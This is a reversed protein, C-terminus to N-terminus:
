AGHVLECDLRGLRGHQGHQGHRPHGTHWTHRTKLPKRQLPFMLASGAATLWQSWHGAHVRNTGHCNQESSTCYNLSTNSLNKECPFEQLTSDQWPLCEGEPYESYGPHRSSITSCRTFIKLLPRRSHGSSIKHCIACLGASNSIAPTSTRFSFRQLSGLSMKWQSNAPLTKKTIGKRAPARKTVHFVNQIM